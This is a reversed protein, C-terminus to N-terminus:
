LNKGGLNIQKYNITLYRRLALKLYSDLIRYKRNNITTSDIKSVEYKSTYNSLFENVVKDLINNNSSIIYSEIGKRIDISFIGFLNELAFM